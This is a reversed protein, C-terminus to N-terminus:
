LGVVDLFGSQLPEFTCDHNHDYDNGGLYNPSHICAGCAHCNGSTLTFHTAPDCTITPSQTPWPNLTGTFADSM